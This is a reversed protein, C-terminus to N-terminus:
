IKTWTVVPNIDRQVAMKGFPIKRHTWVGGYPWTHFSLPTPSFLYWERFYTLKLSRVYCLMSYHIHYYIPLSVLKPKQIIRSVCFLRCMRSTDIFLIFVSDWVPTLTNPLPFKRNGNGISNWKRKELSKNSLPNFSTPAPWGWKKKASRM